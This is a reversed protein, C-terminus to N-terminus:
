IVDDELTRWIVLKVSYESNWCNSTSHLALFFQIYSKNYRIQTNKHVKICKKYSSGTNLSLPESNLQMHQLPQSWLCEKHTGLRKDTGITLNSDKNFLGIGVGERVRVLLLRFVIQSNFFAKSSYKVPLSASHLHLSFCKWIVLYSIYNVLGPVSLSRWHTLWIGPQVCTNNRSDERGVEENM